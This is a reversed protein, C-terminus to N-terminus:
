RSRACRIRPHLLDDPVRPPLHDRGGFAVPRATSREIGAIGIRGSSPRAVSVQGLVLDTSGFANSFRLRLRAGGASVRLTQRLECGAFAVGDRLAPDPPLNGPETLQPAATWTAVWHEDGIM